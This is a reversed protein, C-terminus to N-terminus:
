PRVIMLTTFNALHTKDVFLVEINRSSYVVTAPPRAWEPLWGKPAAVYVGKVREVSLGMSTLRYKIEHPSLVYTAYPNFGGALHMYVYFNAGFVFAPTSSNALVWLVRGVDEVEPQLEPSLVSSVMGSPFYLKDEFAGPFANAMVVSVSRSCAYHLGTVVVFLLYLAALKKGVNKLGLFALLAVLPAPVVALRLPSAYSFGAFLLLLWAAVFSLFLLKLPLLGQLKVAAYAAFPLILYYYGALMRQFRAVTGETAVELSAPRPLPAGGAVEAAAVPRMEMYWAFFLLSAAFVGLLVATRRRDRASFLLLSASVVAVMVTSTQHASCAALALAVAPLARGAEGTCSELWLSAALALAVGLVNSLLQWSFGLVVYYSSVFISAAAVWWGELGARSAWLATSLALLGYVLPAAVKVLLATDFGLSAPVYLIAYFLPPRNVWQGYWWTKSFPTWGYQLMSRVAAAYEVTDYGVIFPWYLIEPVARIFVGWAFSLSLASRLKLRPAAVAPGLRESPLILCAAAAVTFAMHLPMTIHPATVAFGVLPRSPYQLISDWSAGVRAALAASLLSLPLARRRVEDRTYFIAALLLTSLWSATDPYFLIRPHLEALPALVWLATDGSVCLVTVIVALLYFKCRGQHFFFSM